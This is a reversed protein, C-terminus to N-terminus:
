EKGEGLITQILVMSRILHGKEKRESRNKVRKTMLAGMDVLEMVLLNKSPESYTYYENKSHDKNESVAYTLLQIYAYQLRRNGPRDDGFLGARVQSLMAETLGVYM